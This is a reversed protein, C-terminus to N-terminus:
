LIIDALRLGTGQILLPVEFQNDLGVTRTFNMAVTNLIVNHRHFSCISTPYFDAVDEASVKYPGLYTRYQSQFYIRLVTCYIARRVYM